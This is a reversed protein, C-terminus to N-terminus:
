RKSSKELNDVRSYALKQQKVLAKIEQIKLMYSSHFKSQESPSITELLFLIFKDIYNFFPRLDRFSSISILRTNLTTVADWKYQPAKTAISQFAMERQAVMGKIVRLVEKRLTTNKWRAVNEPLIDAEAITKNLHNTVIFHITRVQETTFLDAQQNIEKINIIM